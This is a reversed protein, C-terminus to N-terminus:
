AVSGAFVVRNRGAEKARYVAEDAARLLAEGAERPSQKKVSDAAAVGISVTIKIQEGTELKITEAAIGDCIAHALLCANEADTQPLLVAFEEGGYRTPLDSTRLRAHLRQALATLVLDGAAHGYVDNIQKFHDADIFLCSLPQRYRQARTVEEELRHKLHRRNYLGTLSDTLGALHLRERNVANEVCVAAVSALHGLFDTAQDRQFRQSDRSGLCLFGVPGDPQRLPLLARGGAPQPAFLTSYSERDWAGLWPARLDGFYDCTVRVDSCLEISRVLKADASSNAALLDRIVSFPDLLMLRIDDVRFSSRMGTTLRDLLTVLDGASLLTLERKQYRTMVDLTQQAERHFAQLREHLMNNEQQLDQQQINAPPRPKMEATDAAEPCAKSEHQRFNRDPARKTSDARRGPLTYDPNRL